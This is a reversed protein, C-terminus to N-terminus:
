RHAKKKKKGRANHRLAPVVPAPPAELTVKAEAKSEPEPERELEDLTDSDAPAPPMPPKVPARVNTDISPPAPPKPAVAPRGAVPLAARLPPQMPRRVAVAPRKATELEPEGDTRVHGRVLAGEGVGIRPASLDGVVRAGTDIIVSDTGRIDGVVTGSVSVQAGTVKGDVRAQEGVVVDGSMTVDGEVRGLLDLSGEGSVNGRIVTNQGIASGSAM